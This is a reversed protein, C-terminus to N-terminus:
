ERVVVPQPTSLHTGGKRCIVIHFSFCPKNPYEKMQVRCNGTGIAWYLLFLKRTASEVLSSDPHETCSSVPRRLEVTPDVYHHNPDELIFKMGEEYMM